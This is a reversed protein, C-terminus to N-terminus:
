GDVYRTRQQGDVTGCVPSAQCYGTSDPCGLGPRSRPRLSTWCAVQTTEM